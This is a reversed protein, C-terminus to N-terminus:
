VLKSGGVVVDWIKDLHPLALSGFILLLTTPLICAALPFIIKVPAKMAQEEARHFRRTRIQESQISLIPGLSAGLEDAQIIAGTVSSMEVMGVRWSLDRLAEARSKGLQIDLLGYQTVFGSAKSFSGYSPAKPRPSKTRNKTSISSQRLLGVGSASQRNHGAKSHLRGLGYKKTIGHRVHFCGM